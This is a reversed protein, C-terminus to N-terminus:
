GLGPPSAKPAVQLVELGRQEPAARVPGRGETVRAPPQSSARGPQAASWVQAVPCPHGEEPTQGLGQCWSPNGHERHTSVQGSHEALTGQLGLRHPALATHWLGSAFTALLVQTVVARSSVSM